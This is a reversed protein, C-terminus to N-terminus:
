TQEAHSEILRAKITDEIKRVADQTEASFLFTYSTTTSPPAVPEDRKVMGLIEAGLKLEQIRAKPKERIDDVLSSTILDETLGLDRIAQKFGVSDIIRSPTETAGSSYGVSELVEGLPKPKDLAQNKIVALAAKRQRVRPIVKTQEM